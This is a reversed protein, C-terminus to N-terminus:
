QCLYESIPWFNILGHSHIPTATPAMPTTKSPCHLESCFHYYILNNSIHNPYTCTFSMILIYVTLMLYFKNRIYIGLNIIYSGMWRFENTTKLCFVWQHNMLYHHVRGLKSPTKGWGQLWFRVESQCVSIPWSPRHSVMVSKSTYHYGITFHRDIYM